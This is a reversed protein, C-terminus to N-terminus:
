ILLQPPLSSNRTATLPSTGPSEGFIHNAAFATELSLPETVTNLYKTLQKRAVNQLIQSDHDVFGFPEFGAIGYHFDAKIFAGFNLDNENRISHAFRPPLVTLDGNESLVRFPKDAVSSKAKDLVSMGTKLFDM